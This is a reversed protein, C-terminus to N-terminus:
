DTEEFWNYSFQRCHLSHLNLAFHHLNQLFHEFELFPSIKYVTKKKM